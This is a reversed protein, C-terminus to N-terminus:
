LRLALKILMNPLLTGRHFPSLRFPSYPGVLARSNFPKTRPRYYLVGCLLPCLLVCEDGPIPSIPYDLRCGRDQGKLREAKELMSTPVIPSGFM